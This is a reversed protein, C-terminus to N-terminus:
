TGESISQGVTKKVTPNEIKMVEYSYAKNGDNKIVKVTIKVPYTGNEYNIAGRLRIIEEIDPNNDRDQHRESVAANEILQPM